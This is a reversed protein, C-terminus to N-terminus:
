IRSKSFMYGRRSILGGGGINEKREGEKAIWGGGGGGQVM